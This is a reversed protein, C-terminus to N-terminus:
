AIFCVNKDKPQIYIELKNTTYKLSPEFIPKGSRINLEKEGEFSSRTGLTEEWNVSEPYVKGYLTFYSMGIVWDGDDYFGYGNTSWCKGCHYGDKVYKSLTSLDKYIYEDMRYEISENQSTVIRAVHAAGESWFERSSLEKAYNELEDKSLSIRNSYWGGVMEKGALNVLIGNLQNGSDTKSPKAFRGVAPHFMKTSVFKLLEKIAQLENFTIYANYESDMDYDDSDYDSKMVGFDCDVDLGLSDGMKRISELVQYNMNVESHDRGYTMSNGRRIKEAIDPFRRNIGFEGNHQLIYECINNISGVKKNGVIYEVSSTFKYQSNNQIINSCGSYFEKVLEKLENGNVYHTINEGFARNVDNTADNEDIGHQEIKQLKSSDIYGINNYYARTKNSYNRRNRTTREELTGFLLVIKIQCIGNQLSYNLISLVDSDTLLPFEDELSSFEKKNGADSSMREYAESIKRLEFISLDKM